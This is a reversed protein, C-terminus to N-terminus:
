KKIIENKRVLILINRENYITTYRSLPWAYQMYAGTLWNEAAIFSIIFGHYYIRLKQEAHEYPLFLHFHFSHLIISSKCQKRATIVGCDHM